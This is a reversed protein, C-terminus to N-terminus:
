SNIEEMKLDKHEHSRNKEFDRIFKLFVPLFIVILFFGVRSIRSSLLTIILIAFIGYMSMSFWKDVKWRHIIYGLPGIWIITLTFFIYILTKIAGNKSLWRNFYSPFELRLIDYDYNINFIFGRIWLFEIFAVILFTISIIHHKNPIIKKKVLNNISKSIESYNYIFYLPFVLLISEKALIGLISSLGIIWANKEIIGDMFLSAFFLVALDINPTFAVQIVPFSVNVFLVGILRYFNSFDLKHLYRDTILSSGFLFIFNWILISNSFSTIPLLISWLFPVLIRYKYPAIVADYNGLAMDIYQYIDGYFTTSTTWDQWDTPLFYDYVPIFGIIIYALYGYILSRFLFNHYKTIFGKFKNILEM